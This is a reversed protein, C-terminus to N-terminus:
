FRNEHTLGCGAPSRSKGLNETALPVVTTRLPRIAEEDWTFARQGIVSLRGGGISGERAAASACLANFQRWIAPLLHPPQCLGVAARAVSASRASDDSHCRADLLELEVQGSPTWPDKSEPAVSEYEVDRPDKALRHVNSACVDFGDDPVASGAEAEARVKM